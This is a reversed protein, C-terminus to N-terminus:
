ILFFLFINKIKRSFAFLCVFNIFAFHRIVGDSGKSLWPEIGQATFLHDHSGPWEFVPRLESEAYFQLDGWLKSM